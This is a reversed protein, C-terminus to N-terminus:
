YILNETPPMIVKRRRILTGADDFLGEWYSSPADSDAGTYEIEYRVTLGANEDEDVFDELDEASGTYQIQIRKIDHSRYNSSFYAAIARGTEAPLEEFPLEVEVDQIRGAPDFEVSYYHGRWQFKAEYSYGSESIEQYWRPSKVSEFTDDLWDRAKAPVSSAKVRKEREFKDQALTELPLLMLAAACGIAAPLLKM